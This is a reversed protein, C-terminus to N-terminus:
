RHVATGHARGSAAYKEEEEKPELLAAKYGIGLLVAFVLANAPIQLNFDTVSHILLALVSGACGLTVSSRYRSRDNLFSAIMRFLLYFIPLFLLSAGLFGTESTFELYDNHVHNVFYNVMTTQYHRYAVGFTGLGTGFVPFDRILHLDDKWFAIRPELKLIAPNGLQEFRALVPNLGIWLGYGVTGLIFLFVVIGWTSRRTKLQSLLAIFLLSLVAALIGGRSRSLITGLAVVLLVFFYFLLLSSRRGAETSSSWDRSASRPGSGRQFVYFASAFVLPLVMEMLGAYDDRNIYTGAGLGSANFYTLIYNSGTMYQYFCYAAEGCGLVILSRILLRSRKKSDFLYAALVFASFYALLKILAVLTEHPYISLTAWSSSAGSIRALGLEAPRWPVLRASLWHPLPTAQVVVLLIFLVPWVPIPLDVKGKRTQRLLLLLALFIVAVSVLSYTLPLVGGYFVASCLIAAALGIEILRKM